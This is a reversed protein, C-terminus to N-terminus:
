IRSPFPTAWVVQLKRFAESIEPTYNIGPDDHKWAELPKIRAIHKQFSIVIGQM